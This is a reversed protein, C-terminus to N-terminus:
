SRDGADDHLDPKVEDKREFQVKKKDYAMKVDAKEKGQVCSSLLFLVKHYYLHTLPERQNPM